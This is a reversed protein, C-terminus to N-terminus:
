PSAAALKRMAESLHSLLLVQFLLGLLTAKSFDDTDAAHLPAFVRDLLRRRQVAALDPKRREAWRWLGEYLFWAARRHVAALEGAWAKVHQRTALIMLGESLVGTLLRLCLDGAREPELLQEFVIGGVASIDLRSALESYQQSSTSTALEDLFAQFETLTEWVPSEAPVGAELLVARLTWLERATPSCLVDSLARRVSSEAQGPM